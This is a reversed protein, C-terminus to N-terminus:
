PNLGCGQHFGPARAGQREQGGARVPKATQQSVKQYPAPKYKIYVLEPTDPEFLLIKAKPEPCLQYEKDLITGGFTFRKMWTAERTSYALPSFGIGNRADPVPDPGPRHVTEGAARGGQLPRGQVGAPAQRVELVDVTFEDGGAKYGVYGSERDYTVKFTKFAM